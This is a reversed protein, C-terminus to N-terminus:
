KSQAPPATPQSSPARGTTSRVVLRTDLLTKLPVDADGNILRLLMAAAYEGMSELPQRVTTLHLYESFDHDDFGVVSVDDPVRLGIEEVTKLAGTAMEDSFAFVATPPDKISLLRGMAEAGGALSYNGPVELEPRVPIGHETLVDVYGRRREGPPGFHMPDDRLGSILGIGRHGLNCLHQTVTRAAEYNNCSVAPFLGTESEITVVPQRADKLLALSRDDIAVTIFVVGDVRRSSVLRNFVRSEHEISDVTYRLVDYGEQMLIAEITTAVKNYFWQGTLPVVLGVTMSKGSALRSAHADVAYNMQDAVRLVRERTSPVVNPLGRLARSVTAISVGAAKAVDEITVRM